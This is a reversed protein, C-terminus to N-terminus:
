DRKRKLLLISGGLTLVAFGVLVVVEFWIDGLGWGRLMISREADIAYRLPVAYSLPQLFKPISEVPWFLGALLISPFLVLPIFQIAQLANKGGASLLIGLGQHGIGLLVVVGLALFVNGVISIDFILIAAILIV